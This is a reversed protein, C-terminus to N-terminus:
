SASLSANKTSKKSEALNTVAKPSSSAFTDPSYCGLYSFLQLVLLPWVIQVNIMLDIWILPNWLLLFVLLLFHVRMSPPNSDLFDGGAKKIVWVMYVSATLRWVVLHAFLHSVCYCAWTFVLQLVFASIMLKSCFYPPVFKVWHHFCCSPM